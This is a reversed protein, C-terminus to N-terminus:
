QQVVQSVQCRCSLSVIDYCQSRRNWYFNTVLHECGKIGHFNSHSPPCRCMVEVEYDSRQIKM